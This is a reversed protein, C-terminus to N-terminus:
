WQSKSLGLWSIFGALLLHATLIFLSFDTGAVPTNSIQTVLDYFRTERMAQLYGSWSWYAAIFPRVLPAIADPLALITGSLPLQFGVLYISVLSAQESTRAWTSIALGTGTMAANVLVLVKIQTMLDGPIDCIFKVFCAMWVSQALVLPILFIVKSILTALDGVGSLKEKEIIHRENAVERAANNAGMLTLLIVQFMVLGSVLSGVKSSQITYALQDQLYEVVNQELEMSMNRIEPLGDYAFLVVLIPFILILAVQLGLQGYDRFFLSFRRRTLTIIQALTSPTRMLGEPEDSETAEEQAQEDESDTWEDPEVPEVPEGQESESVIGSQNLESEEYPRYLGYREKWYELSFESLAPFVDEATEVQFFPTLHDAPGHFVVHGEMLVTVTHYLHLHRLSHTVSLVVREEDQVLSAMLNVIENESKPDLGSTVEDCLLLAPRTVLELALGLRRQQGGSLVETRRDAIELLGVRELVKDAWERASAGRDKARTRLLTANMVAERVTLRQHFISFQPVYGLESPHFDDEADLDRGRWLITGESPELLGAISKLLTSKGCGSPGVIAGFQGPQYNLAVQDLLAREQSGTPPHVTIGQLNLM